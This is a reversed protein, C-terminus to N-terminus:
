GHVGSNTVALRRPANLSSCPAMKRKAFHTLCQIVRCTIALLTNRLILWQLTLPSLDHCGQPDRISQTDNTFANIM